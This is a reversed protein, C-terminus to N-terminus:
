RAILRAKSNIKEKRLVNRIRGMARKRADTMPGGVLLIVMQILAVAKRLLCKALEMDNKGGTFDQIRVEKLHCYLHAHHDRVETGPIGYECSEDLQSHLTLSLYQIQPLDSAYQYSPNLCNQRLRLWKLLPVDVFTFDIDCVYSDDIILTKLSLLQGRLLFNTSRHFCDVLRLRELNLCCSLITDLGSQCLPVNWLDLSGLCVLRNTFHSSLDFTCAKLSLHRFRTATTAPDPLLHCPFNYTERDKPALFLRDSFDFDIEEVNKTISSDVWRHIHLCYDNWLPFHVKLTGIHPIGRHLVLQDVAAVFKSTCEDTNSFRKGFVILDDLHLLTQPTSLYRWRRSLTRTQAVDKLTLFSLISSLI